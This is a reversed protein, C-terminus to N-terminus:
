EPPKVYSDIKCSMHHGEKNHNCRGAGAGLANTDDLQRRHPPTNVFYSAKVTVSSVKAAGLARRHVEVASNDEAPAAFGADASPRRVLIQYCSWPCFWMGSGTRVAKPQVDGLEEGPRFSATGYGKLSDLVM